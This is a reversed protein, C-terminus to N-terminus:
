DAYFRHEKQDQAVDPNLTRKDYHLTNLGCNIQHIFGGGGRFEVLM